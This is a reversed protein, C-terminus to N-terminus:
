LCQELYEKGVLQEAKATWDRDEFKEMLSLKWWLGTLDAIRKLHDGVKLGVGAFMMHDVEKLVALNRKDEPLAEYVEVRKRYGEGGDLLHDLTGTLILTRTDLEQYEEVPFIMGAPQPSIILLAQPRLPSVTHSALHSQLGAAALATYSGYSHGGLGFALGEYRDKLHDFVNRVDAVRARLEEPDTVRRVVERNREERRKQPFSKLVDLNSGLHECVAVAWGDSAWQRGLYAYGSKEGGYGVSFLIWGKCEAPPHYLRVPVPRASSSPEVLFDETEITM